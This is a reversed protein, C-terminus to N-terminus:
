DGGVQLTTSLLVRDGLDEGDESVIALRRGDELTYMGVELRYTGQPAGKDVVISHRDVIIDGEFWQTTPYGDNAPQSDHQGWM